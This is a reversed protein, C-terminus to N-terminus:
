MQTTGTLAELLPYTRTSFSIIAYSATPVPMRSIAVFPLPM